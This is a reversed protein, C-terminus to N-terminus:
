CCPFTKTGGGRSKSLIQSKMFVVKTNDYKMSVLLNREDGEFFCCNKKALFNWCRLYCWDRVM